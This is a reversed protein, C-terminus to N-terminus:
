KGVEKSYKMSAKKGLKLRCEQMSENTSRKLKEQM